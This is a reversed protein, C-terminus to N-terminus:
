FDHLYDRILSLLAFVLSSAVLVMVILPFNLTNFNLLDNLTSWVVSLGVLLLLERIFSRKGTATFKVKRSFIIKLGKFFKVFHFMWLLSVITMSSSYKFFTIKNVALVEPLVEIFVFFIGAIFLISIACTIVSALKLRLPLSQNQIKAKSNLNNAKEM